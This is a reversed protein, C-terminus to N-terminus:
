RARFRHHQILRSTSWTAIGGLLLTASIALSPHEPIAIVWGYALAAWILATSIWGLWRVWRRGEFGFKEGLRGPGGTAFARAIAKITQRYRNREFAAREDRVSQNLVTVTPEERPAPLGYRRSLIEVGEYHADLLEQLNADALLQVHDGGKLQVGDDPSTVLRAATWRSTFQPQTHSGDTVISGYASKDPSILTLGIRDSRIWGLADSFGRSALVASSESLAAPIPVDGIPEYTGTLFELWTTSLRNVWYAFVGLLMGGSALGWWRTPFFIVALVGAWLIVTFL